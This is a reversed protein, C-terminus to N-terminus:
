DDGRIRIAVPKGVPPGTRIRSFYLKKFNQAKALPELKIRLDEIIEDAKRTRDKEPTLFVQVQAVHAGVQALPDQPDDRIEGIHAVYDKLEFEPLKQLESTVVKM